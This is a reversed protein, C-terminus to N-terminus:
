VASIHKVSSSLCWIASSCHASISQGKARAARYALRWKGPALGGEAALTIWVIGMPGKSTQWVRTIGGLHKM